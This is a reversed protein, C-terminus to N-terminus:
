PRGRHFASINFVSNLVKNPSGQLTIYVGIEMLQGPKRFQKIDTSLVIGTVESRSKDRIGTRYRARRLESM